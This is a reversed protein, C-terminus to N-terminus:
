WPDEWFKIREGNGLKLRLFQVIKMALPQQTRILNKIVQWPGSSKPGSKSPILGNDEQYISKIVKKWLQDDEKGYRWWWKLLLGANKVALDGVGLGGDNKQRIVVEWKVLPIFRGEKDGNWLFNRQIRVIDDAVKRPIKFLSLYYIPLSNLVSKIMILRGAKSLSSSKWSKLRQQVKDLVQKWSAAKKMNAGLPIGLYNFPLQIRKCEMLQEMRLIWDEDKGLVLLGSKNYNVCLGSFSQFTLFLEKISKLYQEEAECFVLTDDAFQLHSLLIRDKGVSLGRILGLNAAKHMMRNLVEAMLVFLFPSLPDGQRLGREMKFPKTPSRNILISISATSICKQVWNRWNSGFGMVALVMDLAEWDVSNYAKQFDMKLLVGAKKKKKLWHVIENAVLAGDLVQRGSVFAIQAEGILSPM